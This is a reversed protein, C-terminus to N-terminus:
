SAAVSAVSRPPLVDTSSSLTMSPSSSSICSPGTAPTPLVAETPLTEIDVALSTDMPAPRNKETEDKMYKAEICRIDTSSTPTVEVDTKEYRPVHARNLDKKDIPVGAEFWRPTNDYLLPALWSKMDELTTTKIICKYDDTINNTCELVATIDDGDCKVKRGQFVVYDVPKFTTAKRKGPLSHVVTQDSAPPLTTTRPVRIRSPDHMRKSCMKARRALLLQDDEPKSIIDQSDQHEGESEKGKGKGGIIPLKTAPRAMDGLPIPDNINPDNVDNLNGIDDQHDVQSGNSGNVSMEEESGPLPAM